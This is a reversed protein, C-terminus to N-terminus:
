KCNYAILNNKCYILTYILINSVILEITFNDKFLKVGNEGMNNRLSDNKILKMISEALLQANKKPVLLGNYGDQVIERCGPVDTTIIARGCAAAEILAKPLGERYSPLCVINCDKYINNIDKRYGWWEILNNEEWSLLEKEKIAAPNQSDIEGVLIFRLNKIKNQKIIKSANVFEKIGKDWLLRSALVIKKTKNNEKTFSFIRGDM